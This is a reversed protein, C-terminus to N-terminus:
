EAPKTAESYRVVFAFSQIIVVLTPPLGPPFSATLSQQQSTPVNSEAPSGELRESDARIGCQGICYYVTSVSRVSILTGIVDVVMYACCNAWCQDKVPWSVPCLVCSSMSTHWQAASPQPVRPGEAKFTCVDVGVCSFLNCFTSSTTVHRTSGVTALSSCPVNRSLAGMRWRKLSIYM